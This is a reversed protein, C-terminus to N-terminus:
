NHPKTTQGLIETWTRGFGRDTDQGRKRWQWVFKAAPIEKKGEDLATTRFTIKDGQFVWGTKSADKQANDSITGLTAVPAAPKPTPKKPPAVPKTSKDDKDQTNPTTPKKKAEDPDCSLILM